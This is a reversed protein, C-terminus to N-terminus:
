HDPRPSGVPTPTNTPTATRLGPQGVDGGSSGVVLTASVCLHEPFPGGYFSFAYAGGSAPTFTWLMKLGIGGAVPQGATGSVGPGILLAFARDRRGTVYVFVKEGARPVIPVFDIREDGDCGWVPSATSAGTSAVPM